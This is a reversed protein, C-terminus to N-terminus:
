WFWTPPHLGDGHEVVVVSTVKVFMAVVEPEDIWNDKVFTTFGRVIPVVVERVSEVRYWEWGVENTSYVFVPMVM